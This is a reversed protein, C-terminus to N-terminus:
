EDMRIIRSGAPPPFQFVSDPLNVDTQTEGVDLSFDLNKAPWEFRRYAPLAVEGHKKWDDTTYRYLTKGDADKEQMELVAFDTHRVEMSLEGGARTEVWARYNGTSRNWTLQLPTGEQTFRDWPAGGLMIRTLDQASLDFDVLQGINERSPKGTYFTNSDREHLGFTEGNSKLMIVVEDTGPLRTSVLLRSPQSVVILQRVKYREGESFYELVIEKFRASELLETRADVAAKFLSPNEIQNDPPPIDKPWCGWTMAGVTALVVWRRLAHTM